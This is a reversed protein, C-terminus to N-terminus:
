TSLMDCNAGSSAACPLFNIECLQYLNTDIKRPQIEEENKKNNQQLTFDNGGFAKVIANAIEAKLMNSSIWVRGTCFRMENCIIQIEKVTTQKFLSEGNTLLEPFLDDVTKGAWKERNCNVLENLINKLLPCQTNKLVNEISNSMDEENKFSDPNANEIDVSIPYMPKLVDLISSENEQLGVTKGLKQKTGTVPTEIKDQQFISVVESSTGNGEGYLTDSVFLDPRTTPTISHIKNMQKAETLTFLEGSTGKEIRIGPFLIGQRPLLRANSISELSSTKVCTIKNITELCKDKSLGSIKNWLERGHFQTLRDGNRSETIHKHWQGDYTECLIPINRHRLENRVRDVMFHLHQNSMSSGKLVYAVPFSYPVNNEQKRDKDTIMFVVLEKGPDRLVEHCEEFAAKASLSLNKSANTVNELTTEIHIRGPAPSYPSSFDPAITINGYEGTVTPVECIIKSSTKKRESIALKLEKISPHLKTPINPKEKDYLECTLDWLKTWIKKDFQSSLVTASNATSCILWLEECNYARMEAQIQPVYRNPIKYFLTEAINEQPFPSKIEVVIKREKHVSYNPCNENGYSCQLIGDASVELLEPHSQTGVFSPRVKYYAFM